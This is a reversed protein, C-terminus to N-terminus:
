YSAIKLIRRTRPTVKFRDDLRYGCIWVVNDESFIIPIRHREKSPIKLDIFFDKIKRHGKMGLPIFRDGPRFNRVKLPYIIRDADVYAMKDSKVGGPDLLTEQISFSISKGIKEVSLTKEGEIVYEFMLPSTKGAISFSLKDYVKEVSVNNPLDLAGQPKAGEALKIISSIHEYGIRQLGNNVMKLLHRVVRKKLPYPLELFVGLPISIESGRGSIISREVWSQALQNMVNDEERLIDALRGLRKILSPEYELMKPLLELRISNRLFRTDMNSKDVAFPINHYELYKEIDCREIDKIPRIIRNDRVPPIGSLGSVGSGRLLRIVLTEAQDNLNHGTAIKDGHKGELINELFKYRAERASEELSGRPKLSIHGTEFPIGLDNSFNKVLETEVVDESPRWGHEFHATTLRIGLEDSLRNLIHLLCMSDPGGSVAVIVHDGQHIMQYQSITARVKKILDQTQIM